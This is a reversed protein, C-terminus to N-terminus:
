SIIISSGPNLSCSGDKNKIADDFCHCYAHGSVLEMCEGEGCGQFYFFLIWLSYRVTYLLIVEPISGCSKEIAIPTTTTTSTTASTTTSTTTNTTITTTTTKTTKTTTKKTPTSTPTTTTTTTPTSTPTTTTTTTPTATPTTTTTQTTTTTTTTPTTTTTTTSTPTKTTTPPTPLTTSPLSTTTPMTQSCEEGSHCNISLLNPGDCEGHGARCERSRIKTGSGCTQSCM